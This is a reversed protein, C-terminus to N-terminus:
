LRRRKIELDCLQPGEKAGNCTSAVPVHYWQYTNTLNSLRLDMLQENSIGEGGAVTLNGPCFFLVLLMLTVETLGDDVLYRAKPRVIFSQKSSSIVVWRIRNSIVVLSLLFTLAAM